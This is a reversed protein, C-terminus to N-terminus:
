QYLSGYDYGLYYEEVEDWYADCNEPTLRHEGSAMSQLMYSNVEPVYHATDKYIGPDTIIDYADFFSFLRVNEQELLLESALRYADFQAQLIGYCQQEDMYFISYPTFFYYFCVDPNERAISLVNQELTELVNQRQEDSLPFQEGAADPRSYTALIADTGTEAAEWSSYTDFDTTPLGKLTHKLVGLTYNCLIDKNFIYQVDNLLSDDYLYDPYEADTRMLDKHDFLSWGDLGRFVTKLEPNSRVAQRLLRDIEKYSAGSFCTKVSHVGFLSDAESTRFNETMSTGTIVADYDFHRVIGDNQYRQNDIPYNLLELPAHYHFFPDVAVTLGGALTLLLVAATLLLICRKKSTM